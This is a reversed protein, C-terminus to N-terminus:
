CFNTGANASINHVSFILLFIVMCMSSIIALVFITNRVDFHLSGEKYAGYGTNIASITVVTIQHNTQLIRKFGVLLMLMWNFIKFGTSTYMSNWEGMEVHLVSLIGREVDFVFEKGEKLSPLVTDSDSKGVIAVNLNKPPLADTIYIRKAIYPEYIPCGNVGEYTQNSFIILTNAPPFGADTLSKKFSEAKAFLQSITTIGCKSANAFETFVVSEEYKGALKPDKPASPEVIACGEDDESKQFSMRCAIGKSSFDPGEHQFFDFTSVSELEKGESDLVSLKSSVRALFFLCFIFLMM